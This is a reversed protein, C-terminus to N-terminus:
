DRRRRVNQAVKATTHFHRVAELTMKEMNAAFIKRGASRVCCVKTFDVKAEALGVMVNFRLGRVLFWYDQYTTPDALMTPFLVQMQSAQDTCVTVVVGVNDPLPGEGLLYKRMKELDAAPLIVSTAQQGITKWVHVAARWVVSVAYYALKNTDIGINEGSVELHRLEVKYLALKIKDLLPFKDKRWVLGTVYKEGGNSFRDECHKCFLYDSVQQSTQLVIKPTMVIPDEGEEERILRYIARGVLHSDQLENELLCLKCIGVVPM